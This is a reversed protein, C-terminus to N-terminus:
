KQVNRSTVNVMNLLEVSCLAARKAVPCDYRAATVVPV